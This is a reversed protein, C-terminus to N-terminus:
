AFALWVLFTAFPALFLVLRWQAVFERRVYGAVWRAARTAAPLLLAGIAAAVGLEAVIATVIALTLGIVLRAAVAPVKRPNPRRELEISEVNTYAGIVLRKTLSVFRGTRQDRGVCRGILQGVGIAFLCMETDGRIADVGIRM